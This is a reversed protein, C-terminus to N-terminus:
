IIEAHSFQSLKTLTELVIGTEVTGNGNLDAFLYGKVSDTVFVYKVPGDIHDEALDRAEDYGANNAISFESYNFATGKVPLDLWDDTAKFDWITDPLDIKSDTWGNPITFEFEDLGSGGILSDAGAGGKLVDHDAGGDLIDNGADGYLCDNGAQGYLYDLYDGGYIFDRGNGGEMYDLGAGGSITDKGDYGFLDDGAAGGDLIDNGSGGRLTDTDGEGYLYAPGTTKRFDLTDVGAGGYARDWGWNWTTDINPTGPKITDNGNGGYMVDNGTNGWLADHGGLGYLTDDGADGVLTDNWNDNYHYGDFTQKGYKTAM